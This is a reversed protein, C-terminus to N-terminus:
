EVGLKREAWQRFQYLISPAPEKAEKTGNDTPTEQGALQRSLFEPPLKVSQTQVIIAEQMVATFELVKATAADRVTSLNTIVMNELLELSTQVNFLQGSAQYQQLVQWATQSRTVASGAQAAFSDTGDNPFRTDTVGGELTFQRPQRFVHDSIEAGFEVPHRTMTSAVQYRERLVLDFVLTPQPLELLLRRIGDLLGRRGRALPMFYLLPM